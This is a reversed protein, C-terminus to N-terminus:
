DSRADHINLELANRSAREADFKPRRPSSAGVIKLVLCALKQRRLRDAVSTYKKFIENENSHIPFHMGLDSIDVTNRTVLTMRHLKATAALLGDIVPLPRPASLRLRLPGFRTVCLHPVLSACMS